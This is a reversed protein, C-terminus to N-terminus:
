RYDIRKAVEREGTIKKFVQYQEVWSLIEITERTEGQKRRLRSIWVKAGALAKRLPRVKRVHCCKKRNEVSKYFLNPGERNTLEALDAPDPHFAEIDIQYRDMAEQWIDYTEQFNRGTDITFIRPKEIREKLLHVLVMGEAGFSTSLKVSEPDFTKFTWDIISTASQKEFESNLKQIDLQM